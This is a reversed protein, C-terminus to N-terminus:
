RPAVYGGPVGRPSLVIQWLNNLRARFSGACSLLYFRWMRFFREGYEEALESWASEFNDYWAHLTSDYHTGFNHWDELLLIRDAADAVQAASPVVSNPFIYREIWPDTRATTINNGITHLLLLGDPPLLRHCAAMFTRYNKHGVHEFMGVSVIRDFREDVERYDQLRIDVPWGECLRRGYEVQERSITVGVVEVGYHEAMFRALEAWGCGIDLVRMGPELALKRCILDMKAWQADDLNDARAWYGCSYAMYRGLMREYLRNGIDYHQVGVRFARRRNQQNVVRAMLLRPAERWPRVAADVRYRLIRAMAEALDECDWWGDMYAEGFGLSGEAIVRAYLREDHVQIDCPRDGNFRVDCPELLRELQARYRNARTNPRAVTTTEQLM